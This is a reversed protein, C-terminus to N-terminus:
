YYDRIDMATTIAQRCCGAIVGLADLADEMPIELQADVEAASPRTGRAELRARAVAARIARYLPAVDGIAGGCTFCRVPILM